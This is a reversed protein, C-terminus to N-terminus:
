GYIVKGYFAKQVIVDSYVADFDDYMTTYGKGVYWGYANAIDQTTLTKTIWDGEGEDEGNWATLTVSGAKDWASGEGYNVAIWWPWTEFASGFTMEWLEDAPITVPVTIMQKTTM